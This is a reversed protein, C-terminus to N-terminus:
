ERFSQKQALRESREWENTKLNYFWYLKPKLQVMKKIILFKEANEREMFKFRNGSDILQVIAPCNLDISLLPGQAGPEMSFPFQRCSNPRQDYIECINDKLHPCDNETLQYAIIRFEPDKPCTGQGIAPNVNDKNILNVEDPFLTLGRLIGKDCALLTHCCKACKQCQFKVDFTHM